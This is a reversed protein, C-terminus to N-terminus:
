VTKRRSVVWWFLIIASKRGNKLMSKRIGPVSLFIEPSFAEQADPKQGCPTRLSLFAPFQQPQAERLASYHPIHYFLNDTFGNNKALSCM